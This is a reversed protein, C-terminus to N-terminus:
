ITLKTPVAPSYNRLIKGNTKSPSYSVHRSRKQLLYRSYRYPPNKDLSTKGNGPYKCHTPIRAAVHAYGKSPTESFDEGGGGGGLENFFFLIKKAKYTCPSHM